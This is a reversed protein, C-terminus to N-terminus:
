VDKGPLPHFYSLNQGCCGGGQHDHSCGVLKQAYYNSGLLMACGMINVGKHLFTCCHLDKELQHPLHSLIPGGHGNAAYIMLLGLGAM